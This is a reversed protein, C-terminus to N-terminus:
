IQTLGPEHEAKLASLNLKLVQKPTGNRLKSDNENRGRM